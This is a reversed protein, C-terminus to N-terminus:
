FSHFRRSAADRIPDFRPSHPFWDWPGPEAKLPVLRPAAAAFGRTLSWGSHKVLQLTVRKWNQESVTDSILVWQGSHSPPEPSATSGRVNWSCRPLGWPHDPRMQAWHPATLSSDSSNEESIGSCNEIQAFWLFSSRAGKAQTKIENTSNIQLASTTWLTIWTAAPCSFHLLIPRKPSIRLALGLFPHIDPRVLTCPCWHAPIGTLKQCVTRSLAHSGHGTCRRASCRHKRSDPSKDLTTVDSDKNLILVPMYPRHLSLLYPAIRASRMPCIKVDLKKQPTGGRREPGKRETSGLVGLQKNGTDEPEKREQIITAPCGPEDEQGWIRWDGTFDSRQKRLPWELVSQDENRSVWM